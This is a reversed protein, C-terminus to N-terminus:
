LLPEWVKQERVGKPNLFYGRDECGQERLYVTDPHYTDLILFKYELVSKLYSRIRVLLM